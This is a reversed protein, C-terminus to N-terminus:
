SDSREPMGDDSARHEAYWDAYWWAWVIYGFSDVANTVLRGSDLVRKSHKGLLICAAESPHTISM